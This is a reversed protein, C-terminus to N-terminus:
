MEQRCKEKTLDPRDTPWVGRRILEDMLRAPNEERRGAAQRRLWLDALRRIRILVPLLFSRSIEICPTHVPLVHRWKERMYYYARWFEHPFLRVRVSNHIVPCPVVYSRHGRQAAELCIDSGYFHFGSLKEDFQLGAAKQLVLCVEDLTRVECALRFRDGVMRRLGTSYLSGRGEGSATIGYVGAVGWDKDMEDLLATQELLSKCWGQPLYVDQHVFVVLRASTKGLATNYAQGASRAGEIVRVSVRGAIDPSALLSTELVKKNNCSVVLEIEDM